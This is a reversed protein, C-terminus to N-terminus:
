MQGDTQKDTWGDTTCWIEPVMCWRIMLKPVCTHFLSIELLNKWKILIKIQQTTLPYFTWFQDLICFFEKQEAGYILFWVDYSKWKHYVHLFHYRLANKKENTWFKIKWTTLSIFPCHFHRDRASWIKPVMCWIITTQPVCTYFPLIELHKKWKNLIKIKRITLPTFPCFITWFSLFNYRDCEMDWFGYMMDNDNTTCLHLIIIDGVTKKM